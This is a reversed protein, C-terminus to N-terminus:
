NQRDDVLIYGKEEDYVIHFGFQQLDNFAADMDKRIGLIRSLEKLADLRNYFELSLKTTITTEINGSEPDRSIKETKTESIKAISAVDIDTLDLTDWIMLKGDVIEAVDTFRSLAIILLEQVLKDTDIELRKLRAKQQATIAKKIEPKRALDHGIDYASSPSYGASIAAATDNGTRIKERIFIRQRQEQTLERKCDGKRGAMTAKTKAKATSNGSTVSKRKRGVM